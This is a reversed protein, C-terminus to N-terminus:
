SSSSTSPSSAAAWGASCAAPSSTSSGPRRDPEDLSRTRAARVAARALAGDGRDPRRVPEASGVPRLVLLRQRRAVLVPRRGAGDAAAAGPPAHRRRRDRRHLRHVPRGVQARAEEGKTRPRTRRDRRRGHLDSRLGVGADLRVTLQLRDRAGERADDQRNGACRPVAPRARAQRRSARLGRGVALDLRRTTSRGEGGGARPRRGAQRGVRRRGARVCADAVPEDRAHPRHHDRLQRHLPLLRLRGPDLPGALQLHTGRRSRDLRPRRVVLRGPVALRRHRDAHRGSRRPVLLALVLRPATRSRGGRSAAPERPRVPEAVPHGPPLAPRRSRPVRDRDRDRRASGEVAALPGPAHLVRGARPEDSPRRVDRRPDPAALRVRARARGRELRVRGDGSVSICSPATPELSTM